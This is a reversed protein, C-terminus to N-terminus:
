AAVAAREPLVAVLAYEIFLGKWMVDRIVVPLSDFQQAYELVRSPEADDIHVIDFRVSGDIWPLANERRLDILAYIMRRELHPSREDTVLRITFREDDDHGTQKILYIGLVAVRKSRFAEAIRVLGEAGGTVLSLPDM